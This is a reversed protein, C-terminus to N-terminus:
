GTPGRSTGGGGGTGAPSLGALDPAAQRIHDELRALWADFPVEADVVIELRGGPMLRVRGGPRAGLPIAVRERHIGLRDTVELIRQIEAPSVAQMM